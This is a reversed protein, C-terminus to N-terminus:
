NANFKCPTREAHIGGGHVNGNGVARGCITVADGSASVSAADAQARSTYYMLTMMKLM